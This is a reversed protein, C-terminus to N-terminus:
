EQHQTRLAIEIAAARYNHAGISNPDYNIVSMGYGPAESIRVSRPIMINLTEGPFHRRVEEAVQSSLRTRADFMTILVTSLRLSNNLGRKVLDISKLLQSLGELAYYEAQVPVLLENAAVMANVTILGLSPPCDIIIYDVPETALFYDIANALKRERGSISVLELEAAALDITAPVVRLNDSEPSDSLTDVLAYDGIILEYSGLVGSRHDVGLATSANGQPDVDILVVKLGGKALAVSLNVASTTKGVGGKQNAIVLVRPKSPKPLQSIQVTTGRPVNLEAPGDIARKPRPPADDPLPPNIEAEPTLFTPAHVQGLEGDAAPGLTSQEDRSVNVVM